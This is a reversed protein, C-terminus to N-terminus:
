RNNEETFQLVNELDFTAGDIPAFAHTSLIQNNAFVISEIHRAYLVRKDFCHFVNNQITLKGHYRREGDARMASPTVQIPAHGWDAVYTCNDFLNNQVTIDTIAGSEFWENADGEILIAAGPVSFVNHEVLVKGASTLLLGRARNNRFICHSIEVDPIYALNEIVHGAQMQACPECLKIEILDKNLARISEIAAEHYGLMTQNDIVRLRQGKEGMCVGKHQDHVLRVILADNGCVSEIRAYIGHINVPDDLQNEFLCHKIQLKGACYVFHTADAAATFVRPHDPNIKVQFRELVIDKTHEAIFAMGSAHYVAVDTLRVQQCYSVYFCPHTRLHHRLILRNGAKSTSLFRQEERTLVLTVLGPQEEQCVPTLGGYEEGFCVDHTAYVPANRQEDMELWRHLPNWKEGCPFFLRGNIIQYPYQKPDIALKMCKEDVSVITAESYVPQAYDVTLGSITLNECREAYFPLLEAHFLLHANEGKITLNKCALLAFAIRKLADEDHNPICLLCETAYDPYFHYTGEAFLLTINEQGQLEELLKRLPLTNDLASQPLIGRSQVDITAGTTTNQIM